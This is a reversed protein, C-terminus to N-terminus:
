SNNSFFDDSFCDFIPCVETIMVFVLMPDFDIVTEKSNSKAYQGTKM